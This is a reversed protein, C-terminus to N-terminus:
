PLLQLTALKKSAMSEVTYQRPTPLTARFCNVAPYQKQEPHAGGFSLLQKEIMIDVQVINYLLHLEWGAFYIILEIHKVDKRCVGIPIM